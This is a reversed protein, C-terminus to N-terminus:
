EREFKFTKVGVATQFRKELDDIEFWFSMIREPEEDTTDHRKYELELSQEIESQYTKRKNVYAKQIGIEDCYNKFDAYLTTLGFAQGAAPLKITREGEVIAKVHEMVVNMSREKVKDKIESEPLAWADFGTLDMQALYNLWKRGVEPKMIQARLADFYARDGVHECNGNFAVTRRDSAELQLAALFNTLIYYSSVNMNKQSDKCKNTMVLKKNTQMDKFKQNTLISKPGHEGVPKAEEFVTLIQKVALSNFHGIVVDPDSTTLLNEDGMVYEALFEVMLSKGTGQKGSYMIITPRKETPRQIMCAQHGIWYKTNKEDRGALDHMHAIIRKIDPDDASVIADDFPHLWHCWLNFVGVPAVKFYPMWTAEIFRCGDFATAQNLERLIDSFQKEITVPKGKVEAQIKIASKTSETMFPLNNKKSAVPVPQWGTRYRSYWTEEKQIYVLCGMMWTQVDAETPDDDLLKYKDEYFTPADPAAARIRKVKLWAWVADPSDEKAKFIVSGFSTGAKESDFWGDVEDKDYEGGKIREVFEHAIPRIEAVMGQSRAIQGLGFVIAMREKYESRNPGLCEVIERIQEPSRRPFKGAKLDADIIGNDADIQKIRAAVAAVVKDTPKRLKEGQVYTACWDKYSEGLVNRQKATIIVTLKVETPANERVIEERCLRRLERDSGEKRCYPLRISKVGKDSAKECGPRECYVQQDFIPFRPIYAASEFFGWNRIRFHFSNKWVPNGHKDATKGPACFSLVEGKGYYNALTKYALEHDHFFQDKAKQESGYVPDYDYYPKCPGFIIEHSHPNKDVFEELKEVAVEKYEAKEAKMKQKVTISM